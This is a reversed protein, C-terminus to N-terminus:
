DLTFSFFCVDFPVRGQVFLLSFLVQSSSSVMGMSMRFEPELFLRKLRSEAKEILGWEDEEGEFDFTRELASEKEGEEEGEEQGEKERWVKRWGVERLERQEEDTALRTRTREGGEAADLQLIRDVAEHLRTRSAETEEPGGLSQAAVLNEVGKAAVRLYFPLRPFPHAKTSSALLSLPPSSRLPSLQVTLLCPFDM